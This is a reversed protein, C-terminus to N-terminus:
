ATRAAVRVVVSAPFGAGPVVLSRRRELGVHFGVGSVDAPIYVSTRSVCSSSKSRSSACLLLSLAVGVDPPRVLSRSTRGGAIGAGPDPLRQGFRRGDGCMGRCEVAGGYREHLMFGPAFAAQLALDPRRRVPTTRRKVRSLDTTRFWGRGDVFDNGTQARALRERLRNLWRALRDAGEASRPERLLLGVPGPARVRGTRRGPPELSKGRRKGFAYDRDHRASDSM